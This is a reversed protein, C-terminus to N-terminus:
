SSILAEQFAVSFQALRTFNLDESPVTMLECLLKPTSFVVPDNDAPSVRLAPKFTVTVEGSINSTADAAVRKFEDRVQFFEGERVILTSPTVGDIILSTGSQSAGLVAGTLEGSAAGDYMPHGITFRGYIGVKVLFNMMTRTQAETLPPTSLVGEWRDSTGAGLSVVQRQRTFASESLAKNENLDLRFTRIPIAPFAESM